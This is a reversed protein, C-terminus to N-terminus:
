RVIRVVYSFLMWRIGEPTESDKDYLADSQKATSSHGHSEGDVTRHDGDKWKQYKEGRKRELERKAEDVVFEM